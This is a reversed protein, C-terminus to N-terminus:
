ASVEVLDFNVVETENNVVLNVTFRIAKVEALNESGYKTFDSFAIILENWGNVLEASAYYIYCHDYSYVATTFLVVSVSALNSKDATYFRYKFYKYKSLNYTKTIDAVFYGEVVGNKTLQISTKGQAFNTSLAAVCSYVFDLDGVRECDTIRKYPKRLYLKSSRM